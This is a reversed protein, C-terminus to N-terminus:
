CRSNYPQKSQPRRITVPRCAVSNISVCLHIALFERFNLMSTNEFHQLVFTCAAPLYRLQWVLLMRKSNIAHSYSVTLTPVTLALVSCVLPFFSFRIGGMSVPISIIRSHCGILNWIDYVVFLEYVALNQRCWQLYWTFSHSNQKSPYRFAFKFSDAKLKSFVFNELSIM